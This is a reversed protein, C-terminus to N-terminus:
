MYEDKLDYLFSNLNIPNKKIEMYGSELKSLDLMDNIINLLKKASKSIVQL